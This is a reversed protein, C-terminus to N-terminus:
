SKKYSFPISLLKQYQESQQGYLNRIYAKILRVISILGTEPHYLINNRLLRMEEVSTMLTAVGKCSAKVDQLKSELGTISINTEAPSYGEETKLTQIVLDLSAIRNDYHFQSVSLRYNSVSQGDKVLVMKIERGGKVKKILMKLAESAKDAYRLNVSAPEVQEMLKAVQDFVVRQEYLAKCLTAQLKNFEDETTIVTQLDSELSIISIAKDSPQYETGLALIFDIILRFGAINQANIRERRSSM